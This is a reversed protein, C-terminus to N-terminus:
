KVGDGVGRSKSVNLIDFLLVMLRHGVSQFGSRRLASKSLPDDVIMRNKILFAEEVDIM